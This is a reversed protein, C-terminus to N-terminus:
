KPRQTQLEQLRKRVQTLIVQDPYDLFLAETLFLDMARTFRRLREEESFVIRKRAAFYGRGQQSELVGERVLEAYARAVTNPNILLREALARVSPLQDNEQLLGSSVAKKVQEVIQAYIALPSGPMIQIPLDM